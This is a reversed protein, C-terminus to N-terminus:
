YRDGCNDGHAVTRDNKAEDAIARGSTLSSDYWIRNYFGDIKGEGGVGREQNATKVSVCASPVEAFIRM